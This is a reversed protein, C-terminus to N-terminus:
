PWPMANPSPLARFGIGFGRHATLKPTLMQEFLFNLREVIRSIDPSLNSQFIRVEDAEGSVNYLELTLLHLFGVLKPAPVQVHPTVANELISYATRISPFVITLSQLKQCSQLQAFLYSFEM